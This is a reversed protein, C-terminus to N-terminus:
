HIWDDSSCSTKNTVFVDCYMKLKLENLAMSSLAKTKRKSLFHRAKVSVLNEHADASM